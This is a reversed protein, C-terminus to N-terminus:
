GAAALEATWIGAALLKMTVLETPLPLQANPASLESMQLGSYPASGTAKPRRPAAWGTTFMRVDSGDCGRAGASSHESTRSTPCSVRLRTTSTRRYGHRSFDARKIPHPVVPRINFFLLGGPLVPAMLGEGRAAVSDAIM